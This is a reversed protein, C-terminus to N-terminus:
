LLWRSQFYTYKKNCTQLLNGQTNGLQVKLELYYSGVVL